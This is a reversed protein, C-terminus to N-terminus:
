KKNEQKGQLEELKKKAFEGQVQGQYASAIKKYLKAADDYYELQECIKAAKFRATTAWMLENSHLYTVALYQQLAAKLKGQGELCEAIYYSLEAKRSKAEPLQLLRKFEALAEDFLGQKQFLLGIRIREGVQHVDAPIERLYERYHIIADKVDGTKELSVGLYYQLAFDLKSMSPDNKDLAQRFLVAAKKYDRGKFAIAGLNYAALAAYQGNSYDKLIKRLYAPKQPRAYQYLFYYAEDNGPADPFARVAMQYLSIAKSLKGKERYKRAKKLIAQAGHFSEPDNQIFDPELEMLTLYDGASIALPELEHFALLHVTTDPDSLEVAKELLQRKLQVDEVVGASECLHVPLMPKESLATKVANEGDKLRLYIMFLLSKDKGTLAAAEKVKGSLALAFVHLDLPVSVSKNGALKQFDTAAKEYRGELYSSLAALKLAKGSYKSDTLMEAARGADQYMGNRFYADALLFAADNRLNSDPYNALINEFSKIAESYVGRNLMLKGLIFYAEDTVPSEVGYKKLFDTTLKLAEDSNGMYLSCKIRNILALSAYPSNPAKALVKGYFRFAGAADNLKTLRYEALRYFDHGPDTGTLALTHLVDAARNYRRFRDNVSFKLELAKRSDTLAANKLLRDAELLRGQKLMSQIRYLSLAEQSVPKLPITKRFLTYADAAKGEKLLTHVEFLRDEKEGARQFYRAAEPYKKNAFKLLGLYRFLRPSRWKENELRALVRRAKRYKKLHYYSIGLNLRVENDMGLKLFDNYEKVADQFRKRAFAVDGALQHYAKLTDPSQSKLNGAISDLKAEAEPYRQELYFATADYLIVRVCGAPSKACYDKVFAAAVKHERDYMRGSLCASVLMERVKKRHSSDPYNALFATMRDVAITYTGDRVLGRIVRYDDNEGAFVGATVALMLFVTLVQKM